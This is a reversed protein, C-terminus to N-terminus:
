SSLLRPVDALSGLVYDPQITARDLDARRTVGTLVLATKMGARQGMAIDSSLSDGVLLCERATRGLRELALQVVLQSPKGSVWEVKRNTCGELAGIIAGADPIEGGPQPWTADTNTAWFRAGSRLAHFGITLKRYDFARDTSAIVVDIENPDESFQFYPALQEILPPDAIAFVRAHPMEQRLHHVLVLASNIIGDASVQIGLRTLKDVHEAVTEIANTVFVLPHASARMREITERAGPILQEGCYVTGDLDFIIGHHKRIVFIQWLFV